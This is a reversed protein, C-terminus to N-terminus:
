SGAAQQGLGQRHVEAHARRLSESTMGSGDAKWGPPGWIAGLAARLSRARALDRFLGRWEHFAILFPNFTTLNRVVGYRCPEAPDEATYTGFLRDWIILVGAYNRDLYVANTAHHVRHHSPTNFIAEIPAPLRGVAETHIWFQYVLSLGMQFVILAPPFGLLALPLWCLWSGSVFGTWTQRLATSLNYHQSTHHNVHACWWLRREHSLRHFWYYCFDELPMILVFAWWQFGIDFLRVSHVLELAGYFAAAAPLSVVLNGFGMMLSAASDRAEYSANGRLRSWIVELIIALAFLPVALRVPDPLTM